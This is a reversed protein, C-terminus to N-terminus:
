KTLNIGMKINAQMKINHSNNRFHNTNNPHQNVLQHRLRNSNHYQITKSPATIRMLRINILHSVISQSKMQRRSQTM